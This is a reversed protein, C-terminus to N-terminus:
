ESTSPTPKFQDPKAQYLETVNVKLQQLHDKMLQGAKASLGSRILNAIESHQEQMLPRREIWKTSMFRARFVAANYQRHTTILPQNGTAAVITRHFEMDINFFDLADGDDPFSGLQQILFDLKQSTEETISQGLLECALRELSSLVDILDLVQELSPAAVRPRLNAQMDVLGESALMRLAERLPTRSVGLKASLEREGLIEDPKLEELLIKERLLDATRDALTARSVKTEETRQKFLM